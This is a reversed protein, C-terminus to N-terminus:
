NIKLRTVLALNAWSESLYSKMAYAIIPCDAPRRAITVFDDVAKSSERRYLPSAMRLKFLAKVENELSDASAIRSVDM